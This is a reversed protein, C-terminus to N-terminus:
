LLPEAANAPMVGFLQGQLLDAAGAMGGLGGAAGDELPIGPLRGDRVQGAVPQFLGQLQQLAGVLGHRLDAKCGPKGAGAIKGPDKAFAIAAGGGLVPGAQLFIRRQRLSAFGRPLLYLLATHVCFASGASSLAATRRAHPRGPWAAGPFSLLDCPKMSWMGAGSVPAR